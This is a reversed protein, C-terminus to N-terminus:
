LQMRQGREALLAAYKQKADASLFSHDLLEHWAPIARAFRSLVDNLVRQNIQLRERAFYDLLDNRTLNSKKGKLPLAMEEKAAKLAITTNLLDYAPALQVKDNRTILSFNKLHMDENGALFSFLARQFLKVREIAPFTCFRDIVAAVKEM